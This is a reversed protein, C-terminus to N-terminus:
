FFRKRRRRRDARKNSKDRVVPDPMLKLTQLLHELQADTMARRSGVGYRDKIFVICRPTSWGLRAVQDNIAHKLAFFTEIDRNM